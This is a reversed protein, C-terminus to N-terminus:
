CTYLPITCVAKKAEDPNCKSHPDTKRGRRREFGHKVTINAKESSSLFENEKGVMDCFVIPCNIRAPWFNRLEEM